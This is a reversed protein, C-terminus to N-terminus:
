SRDRVYVTGLHIDSGGPVRLYINYGGTRAALGTLPVRLWRQAGPDGLWQATVTYDGDDIAATPTAWDLTVGNDENVQWDVHADPDDAYIVPITM